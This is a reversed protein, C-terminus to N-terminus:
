AILQFTSHEVGSDEKQNKRSYIKKSPKIKTPKGSFLIRSAVKVFVVQNLEQKKNKKMSSLSCSLM